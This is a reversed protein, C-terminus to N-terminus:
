PLLDLAAWSKPGVIGDPVMGRARQLERMAAETQPGFTGIPDIGLKRQVGKVLEGSSGRRLTPRGAPAGATPPEFAPIMAPMPVTGALIVAIAGRFETMNFVPDQKRGAPLAYEKHAACAMAPKGIFKLIAAVGRRYADVQVEPWPFDNAGGTNEAEIGIFNSNGNTVDNSAPAPM